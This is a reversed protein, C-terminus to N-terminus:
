RRKGKNEKRKLWSNRIRRLTGVSTRASFEAPLYPALLDLAKVLSGGGTRRNLRFEGGGEHAADLLQEVFVKRSTEAMKGKRKAKKLRGIEQAAKALDNVAAVCSDVTSDRTLFYSLHTQDSATIAEELERALRGIQKDTKIKRANNFAAVTHATRIIATIHSEFRQRNTSALMYGHINEVRPFPSEIVGAFEILKSMVKPDLGIKKNM